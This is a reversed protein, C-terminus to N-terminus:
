DHGSMEVVGTHHSEMEIDVVEVIWEITRMSTQEDLPSRKGIGNLLSPLTKMKEPLLILTMRSAAVVRWRAPSTEVAM